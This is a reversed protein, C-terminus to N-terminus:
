RHEDLSAFYRSAEGPRGWERYLTEIAAHARSRSAESVTASRALLPFTDRLLPEAEAYRGQLLLSEGLANRAVAVQLDGESLQSLWIGLARRLSAEAEVGEGLAALARGLGTLASAVYLHGAPLTSAYIQLASRFEGIASEMRGSDVLLLGLSVQDYATFTHAPGRVKRNLAVVDRLTREADEFEGRLHLFRGLNGRADIVQPHEPGLARELMAVSQRFLPAADDLRGQSQLTVALNHIHHAVQPHEQGLAAQDIELARRYLREAEEHRARHLYLSALDNLTSSTVPASDLGHRAYIELAAHFHAEADELAGRDRELRGLSQLTEATEVADDGFIATQMALAAHLRRDAGSLDGQGLLTDGLTKLAEAVEPHTEGYLRRREALSDELLRRADGYHGLSGYVRGITGLLLARTEPQGSLSTGIRRAGADLLERATVERGSGAVPDSLEFLEVLFSSVQEARTREAAAADRERAIRSSQIATTVAFATLMLVGTAAVPVAFRHRSVFKGTRYTWTDPRAAVPLGALHRVIDEAFREASGYRREPEKRMAMLVINDIDGRLRRMLRSASTSRAACIRELLGPDDSALRALAASPAAAPRECIAREVAALRGDGIDFPRLGTLLEYLLVGLVYIDSATTIPQGLVQEPSAHDPTMMRYNVHTVAVTHASQGADLLKAIGFDLLKVVGEATVLINGPKLDRHVVLNQHACHVASCVTRFLELRAEVDLRRRDCYDDIPEGDIYEMILYPTGDALRGGDLLRAINPHDLTALIDREIRLRGQVNSSLLGRRVLKIAVQQHYQRDDREALYVEGMGGRGLSRLLRYVGIRRGELSVQDGPDGPEADWFGAASESEDLGAMVLSALATDGKCSELVFARRERPGLERARRSIAEVDPSDSGSM